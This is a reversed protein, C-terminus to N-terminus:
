RQGSTDERKGRDIGVMDREMEREGREREAEQEGERDRKREWNRGKLKESICERHPQSAGSVSFLDVAAWRSDVVETLFCFTM